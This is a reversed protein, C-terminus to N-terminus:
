AVRMERGLGYRFDWGRDCTGPMGEVFRYARDGPYTKERSFAAYETQLEYWRGPSQEAGQKELGVPPVV